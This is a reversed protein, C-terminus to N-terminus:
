LLVSNVYIYFSFIFYVIVIVIFVDLVVVVIYNYIKFIRVLSVGVWDLVALNMRM